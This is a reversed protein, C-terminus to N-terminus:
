RMLKQVSGLTRVWPQTNLLGSMQDRARKASSLDPYVDLLLVHWTVGDRVTPVVYRVSLQNNEAFKYVRDIDVSAMLQVTYYNAPMNMIEQEIGVEEAAVPEEVVPQEVPMEEVPAPAYPDYALQDSVLGETGAAPQDAMQSEEYADRGSKISGGTAWPSATKEGWASKEPAGSCASLVVAISAVGLVKVAGLTM